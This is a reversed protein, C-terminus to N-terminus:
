EIKGLIHKLIYLSVNVGTCTMINRIYANSNVECVIPGNKTKIIDVGCFDAGVSRSAKIAIDKEENSPIYPKM